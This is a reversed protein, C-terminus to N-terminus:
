KSHVVVTVWKLTLLGHVFRGKQVHAHSRFLDPILILHPPPSNLYLKNHFVLTTPSTTLSFHLFSIKTSGSAMLLVQFSEAFLCPQFLKRDKSGDSGSHGTPATKVSICKLSIKGCTVYKRCYMNQQPVNQKMSQLCCPSFVAQQCFSPNLHLSCLYIIRM